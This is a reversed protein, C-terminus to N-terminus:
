ECVTNRITAPIVEEIVHSMFQNLSQMQKKCAPCGTVVVGRGGQAISPPNSVFTDFTHRQLETQVAKIIEDASM